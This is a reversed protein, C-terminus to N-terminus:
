KVGLMIPNCNKNIFIHARLFPALSTPRVQVHHLKILSRQLLYFVILDSLILTDNANDGEEASIDGSGDMRVRYQQHPLVDVILGSCDWRKPKNGQQNQVSVHSGVPLEPLDRTHESWM